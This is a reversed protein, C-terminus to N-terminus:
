NMHNPQKDVITIQQLDFDTLSEFWDAISTYYHQNNKERIFRKFKLMLMLPMRYETSKDVYIYEKTKEQYDFYLPFM